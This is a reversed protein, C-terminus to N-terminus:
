TTSSGRQRWERPTVGYRQKFSRSFHCIDSFGWAFAIAGIPRARLAATGLDRRCRELREQWVWKMFSASSPHFLEYVRRISLSVGEAIM